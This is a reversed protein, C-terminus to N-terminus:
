QVAATRGATSSMKVRFIAHPHRAAHVQGLSATQVARQNTHFNLVGPEWALGAHKLLQRAAKEPQEVLEEYRVKLIRDPPLIAAWHQMIHETLNVEAAIDAASGQRLGAWMCLERTGCHSSSAIQMHVAASSDPLLCLM